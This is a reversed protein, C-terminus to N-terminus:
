QPAAQQAHLTGDGQARVWEADLFRWSVGYIMGALGNAAMRAGFGRFFLGFLGDARVVKIVCASYSEATTMRLTRVVRFSNTTADTVVAASFGIGANRTIRETLAATGKSAGAACAAREIPGGGAAPVNAQLTNYTGFYAWHTLLANVGTAKAGDFLALPGRAAVAARLRAGGAASGDAQMATKAAELPTICIRFCAAATASIATQLAVPWGRTSELSNLLAMTGANAATDGFRVLPGQLASFGVGSYLRRMGGERLLSTLVGRASGGRSMQVTAVTRLPALLAISIAAAASGALGGGLARWGARRLVVGFPENLVAARAEAVAAHHDPASDADPM